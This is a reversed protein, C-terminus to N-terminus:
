PVARLRLMSRRRTRVAFPPCGTVGSHAPDVDDLWRRLGTVHRERDMGHPIVGTLLQRGCGDVVEVVPEGSPGLGLMTWVGRHSEAMRGERDEAFRRTEGAGAVPRDYICPDGRISGSAVNRSTRSPHRPDTASSGGMMSGASGTSGARASWYPVPARSLRPTARTVAAQTVSYPTSVGSSGKM